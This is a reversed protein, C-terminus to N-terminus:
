GYASRGGPRNWLRKTAMRLWASLVNYAGLAVLVLNRVDFM